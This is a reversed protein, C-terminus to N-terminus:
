KPKKRKKSATSNKLGQRAEEERAEKQLKLREEIKKSATSNKLFHHIEEIDKKSNINVGLTRAVNIIGKVSLRSLMCEVVDGVLEEDNLDIYLFNGNKKQKEINLIYEKAEADSLRREEM